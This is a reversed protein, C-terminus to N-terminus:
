SLSLKKLDKLWSYVQMLWAQMALLLDQYKVLFFDLTNLTNLTIVKAMVINRVNFLHMRVFTLGCKWKLLIEQLFFSQHVETM